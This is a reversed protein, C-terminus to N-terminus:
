RFSRKPIWLVASLGFFHRDLRQRKYKKKNNNHQEKAIVPQTDMPKAGVTGFGRSKRKKELAVLQELSHVDEIFMDTNRM